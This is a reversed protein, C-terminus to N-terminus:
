YPEHSFAMTLDTQTYLSVIHFCHYWRPVDQLQHKIDCEWVGLHMVHITVVTIIIDIGVYTAYHGSAITFNIIYEYTTALLTVLLLGLVLLVRRFCPNPRNGMKAGLEGLLCPSALRQTAM